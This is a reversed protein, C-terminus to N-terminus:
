PHSFEAKEINNTDPNKGLLFKDIFAEVEPHQNELLM